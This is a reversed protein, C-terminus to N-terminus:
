TPLQHVVASSPVTQRLQSLESSLTELDQLDTSSFTFMRLHVNKLTEADHLILLLRQCCMAELSYILVYICVCMCKTYAYNTHM